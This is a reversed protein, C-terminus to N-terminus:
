VKSLESNSSGGLSGIVRLRLAIIVALMLFAGVTAVMYLIFLAYTYSGVRLQSQNLEYLVMSQIILSITSQTVRTMMCLKFLKEDPFGMSTSTFNTKVWPLYKVLPADFFILFLLITYVWAQQFLHNKDLLPSYDRSFPDPGFVRMITYFAPIINIGRALIIFVALRRLNSNDSVFLVVVYFVESVLNYGLIALDCCVSSLEISTVAQCKDRLRVLTVGLILYMLVAIAIVYFAAGNATVVNILNAADTYQNIITASSPTFTPQVTPRLYYAAPNSSYIDNTSVAVLISGTSDSAISSFSVSGAYSTSADWSSGYDASTYVAGSQTVAALYQGSSDSAVDGWTYLKPVSNKSWIAGFDTSTYIHNSCGLILYQGTSDTAM